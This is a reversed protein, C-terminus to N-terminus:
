NPWLKYGKVSYEGNCIDTELPGSVSYQTWKCDGSFVNRDFKLDCAHRIGIIGSEATSAGTIHISDGGPTNQSDGDMFLFNTTDSWDLRFYWAYGPPNVSITEVYPDITLTVIDPQLVGPIPENAPPEGYHCNHDEFRRVDVDWPGSANVIVPIALVPCNAQDRAIVLAEGNGQATVTATQAGGTYDPVQLSAVQSDTISLQPEIPVGIMDKIWVQLPKSDFHSLYVTAPNMSGSGSLLQPLGGCFNRPDLVEPSFGWLQHITAHVDAWPFLASLTARGAVCPENAACQSELAAVKRAVIDALQQLLAKTEGPFVLEIDGAWYDPPCACYHGWIQYKGAIDNFRATWGSMARLANNVSQPTERSEAVAVQAHVWDTLWQSFNNRFREIVRDDDAVGPILSRVGEEQVIQTTATDFYEESPFEVGASASAASGTGFGGSSFHPLDVAYSDTVTVGPQGYIPLFRLGAGGGDFYYALTDSLQSNFPLTVSLRPPIDFSLGEPTLGVGGLQSNVATFNGIAALPTMKIPVDAASDIADPPIDLQFLTGDSATAQVTGGVSPTILVTTSALEDALVDFPPPDRRLGVFLNAAGTEDTYTAVITDKNRTLAGSFSPEMPAVIEGDIAVALSDIPFPVDPASSMQMKLAGNGAGDFKLTGYRWANVEPDDGAALAHFTWDGELNGPLFAGGGRSLIEVGYGGQYELQGIATQGDVAITRRNWPGELRNDADLLNTIVGFGSDNDSRDLAYREEGAADIAITGRVWGNWGPDDSALLGAVNWDGAFDAVTAGDLPKHLFFLTAGGDSDSYTAVITDKDQSMAGHLSPDDPSTIIGATNLHIRWTAPVTEVSADDYQLYYDVIDGNDDFTIHGDMWGYWEGLAYDGANMASYTWLGALDSAAFVTKEDLTAPNCDDDIGNELIELFGPGVAPNADDCDWAGAPFDVIGGGAPEECQMIQSAQLPYTDADGDEYWLTEPNIAANTDDCDTNDTSYGAPVSCAEQTTLRDGYLDGDSDAFFTSTVGEDVTINCNDDLGNCTEAANPNITANSDDCDGDIAAFGAPVTCAAMTQASTGFLDGDADRFFSLMVGEDVQGDCSDDVGNCAEVAGPFTSATTDDCDTNDIVFGAPASCALASVAADGFTDADADAYFTDQVGEDVVTNCNDDILNCTEAAGPHVQADTDDCDDFTPAYGPPQAAAAVIDNTTGHDDGDADEYWPLFPNDPTVIGLDAAASGDITVDREVFVTGAVEITIRYGGTEIGAVFQGFADTDVSVSSGAQDISVFTVNAGPVPNGRSDMVQGTANVRMSKSNSSGGDSCGATMTAAGALLCIAFLPLRQLVLRFM